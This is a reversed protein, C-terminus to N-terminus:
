HCVRIRNNFSLSDNELCLLGTVDTLAVHFWFVDDKFELNVFIYAYM